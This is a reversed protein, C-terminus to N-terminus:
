ATAPGELAPANVQPQEVPREPSTSPDYVYFTGQVVPAPAKTPSPQATLAQAAIAAIAEPTIAAVITNAKETVDEAVVAHVQCTMTRLTDVLSAARKFLATLDNLDGATLPLRGCVEGLEGLPCVVRLAPAPDDMEWYTRYGDASEYLVRYDSM